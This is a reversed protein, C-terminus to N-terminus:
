VSTEVQKETEEFGVNISSSLKKKREINDLKKKLTRM